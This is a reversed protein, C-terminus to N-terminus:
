LVHPILLHTTRRYAAYEEGFARLNEPEEALATAAFCASAGIALATAPWSVRKLLAGGALLVLSAYLPHRIVRYAGARVLVTTKEFGLLAAEDARRADPRGAVRLVYFSHAALGASSTLLAWSALQRPCLPRRFWWPANLSVLGALAVFGFFRPFGHSRPKALSHRSAIALGATASALILFRRV